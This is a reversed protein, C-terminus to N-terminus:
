RHPRRRAPPAPALRRPAPPTLGGRARPRSHAGRRLAQCADTRPRPHGRAAGAPARAEGGLPPSRARRPSPHTRRRRGRREPRGPGVAGGAPGTEKGGGCRDARAAGGRLGRAGSTAAGPGYAVDPGPCLLRGGPAGGADQGSAPTRAPPPLGAHGRAPRPDPPGHPSTRTQPFSQLTQPMRYPRSRRYRTSIVLVFLKQGKAIRSLGSKFDQSPRSAEDSDSSGLIETHHDLVFKVKCYGLEWEGM